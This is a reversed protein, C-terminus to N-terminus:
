FCLQPKWAAVRANRLKILSYVADHLCDIQEVPELAEFAPTTAVEAEDTEPNWTITLMPTETPQTNLLFAIEDGGVKGFQRFMREERRLKILLTRRQM